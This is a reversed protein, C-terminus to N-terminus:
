EELCVSNTAPSGGRGGGHMRWGSSTLLVRVDLGRKFQEGCGGAGEQATERIKSLRLRSNSNLELVVAALRSRGSGM